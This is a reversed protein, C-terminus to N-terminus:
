LIEIKNHELPRIKGAYKELIPTLDLEGTLPPFTDDYHDLLIQKPKLREIVRVAPPFNDTWGNYAMILLDSETPYEVDAGLNLSGLLSISKGEAEIQYFVTEGREKCLTNEHLLYPLNDKAPSSLFTALLKPTLRPLVAHKGHLVRIKFDCVSIEDGFNILILNGQPIGKRLLTKYPTKTCRIRISPNRRYISPLSAIHDLHGHTILIDEFGDFDEATIGVPSGKLPVFPDFLIKGGSTRLEISATGHWVIEM